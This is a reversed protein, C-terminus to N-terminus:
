QAAVRMAQEFGEVTRPGQYLRGAVFFTPTGRVGVATMERQDRDIQAQCAPSARDRRFQPLDLGMAGAIDDIAEAKVQSVDFRGQAGAKGVGWGHEWVAHEFAAGQGQKQAACVGLAPVTATESHVVFQKSVVKVDAAHRALLADVVGASTACYPCAFDFAEVIVIAGKGRSVDDDHLPISQVASPEPRKATNKELGDVRKEVNVLRTDLADTNKCSAFFLVAAIAAKM